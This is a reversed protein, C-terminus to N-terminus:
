FSKSIKLLTFNTLASSKNIVGGNANGLIDYWYETGAVLSVVMTNELRGFEYGTSSGVFTGRAVQKVDIANSAVREYLSLSVEKLDASNDYFEASIISLYTGTESPTFVCDNNSLTIDSSYTDTRVLIFRRSTASLPVLNGIASGSNGNETTYNYTGNTTFKICDSFLGSTLGAIASANNTATTRTTEAYTRLTSTATMDLQASQTNNIAGNIIISDSMNNLNKASTITILNLKALMEDQEVEEEDLGHLNNSM